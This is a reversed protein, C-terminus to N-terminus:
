RYGMLCASYPTVTLPSVASPSMWPQRQAMSSWPVATESVTIDRGQPKEERREMSDETTPHREEGTETIEESHRGGMATHRREKIAASKGTVLQREEGMEAKEESVLQKEERKEASEVRAPERAERVEASEKFKKCEAARERSQPVRSPRKGPIPNEQQHKFYKIGKAFPNEEIKLLSM